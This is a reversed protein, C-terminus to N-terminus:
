GSLVMSCSIATSLATLGIGAILGVPISLLVHRKMSERNMTAPLRLFAPRWLSLVLGDVVVTDFLFLVVYHGFNLLMLPTIPKNTRVRNVLKINQPSARPTCAKGSSIFRM